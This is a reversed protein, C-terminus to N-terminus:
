DGEIAQPEQQEALYSRLPKVAEGWPEYRDQADQTTNLVESLDNDDPLDIGLFELAHNIGMVQSYVTEKARLGTLDVGTNRLAQGFICGSQGAAEGLTYFCVTRGGPSKYVADPHEDALRLVEEILNTATTTM